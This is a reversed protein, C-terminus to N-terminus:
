APLRSRREAADPTSTACAGSSERDARGCFRSAMAGVQRGKYFVPEPTGHVARDFLSQELKDLTSEIADDWDRAFVEDVKRWEYVSKRDVRAHKAAHYVSGHRRLEALFRRKAVARKAAAIASRKAIGERARLTTSKHIESQRTARGGGPQSASPLRPLAVADLWHDSSTLIHDKEQRRGPRPDTRTPAPTVRRGLDSLAKLTTM